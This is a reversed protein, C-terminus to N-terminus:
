SFSLVECKNPFTTSVALPHFRPAYKTARSPHPLPNFSPHYVLSLSLILCIAVHNTSSGPLNNENLLSEFVCKKKRVRPSLTVFSATMWPEFLNVVLDRNNSFLTGVGTPPFKLIWNFSSM